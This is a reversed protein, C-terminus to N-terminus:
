PAEGEAEKEIGQQELFEQLKDQIHQQPTQLYQASPKLKIRHSLVSVLVDQVDQWGTTKKGKLKANTQAREYLGITARVSPFQELKDSDRLM